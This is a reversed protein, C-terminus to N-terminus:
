PVCQSGARSSYTPDRSITSLVGLKNVFTIFPIDKKPSGTSGDVTLVHAYRERAWALEPPLPRDREGWRARMPPLVAELVRRFLEPPFERLRQSLSQESVRAPSCWLFCSSVALFDKAPSTRATSLLARLYESPLRSSYQLSHSWSM